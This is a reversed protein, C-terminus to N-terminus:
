QAGAEHHFTPKARGARTHVVASENAGDDHDVREAIHDIWLSLLDNSACSVGQTAEDSGVGEAVCGDRDDSCACIEGLAGGILDRLHCM